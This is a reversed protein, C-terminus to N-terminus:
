HGAKEPVVVVPCEAHHTVYTAVSGLLVRTAANRGRTGVVILDADLARAREVIAAGVSGSTVVVDAEPCREDTLLRLQAEASERADSAPESGMVIPLVSIPPEAFVEAPVVHLLTLSDGRARALDVAWRLAREAHESFDYAVLIRSAMGVSAALSLGNSPESNLVVPWM